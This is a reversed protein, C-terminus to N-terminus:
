LKKVVINQDKDNLKGNMFYLFTQILRILRRITDTRLRWLFELGRKELFSPVIKEEGACMALSAGICIIKYKKM